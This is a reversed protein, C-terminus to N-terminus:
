ERVTATSGEPSDACDSGEPQATRAQQPVAALEDIMKPEIAKRALAICDRLLAREYHNTNPLSLEKAIILHLAKRMEGCNCPQAESIASLLARFDSVATSALPDTAFLDHADLWERVKAAAETVTAPVCGADVSRQRESTSDSAGSSLHTNM